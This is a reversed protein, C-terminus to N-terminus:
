RALGILLEKGVAEDGHINASFKVQPKLLPRPKNVDTTIKIGLIQRGEVSRGISYLQAIDCYETSLYELEDYM